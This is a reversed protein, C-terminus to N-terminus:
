FYLKGKLQVSICHQPDPIRHRKSGQIRSWHHTFFWSGYPIFLVYIRLSPGPHFFKPDPIRFLCGPDAVSWFHNLVSGSGSGDGSEFGAWSGFGFVDFNHRDLRNRIWLVPSFLQSRCSTNPIRIRSGSGPDPANKVGPDPIRFLNKGSGPNRIGYGLGM